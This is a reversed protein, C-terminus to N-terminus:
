SAPLYDLPDLYGEVASFPSLASGCGTVAKFQNFQKVQVAESVYLTYHLHPGTSYGTNGTYGVVDGTNVKQGNSVGIHSLHAFLTSLGNPHDILMWKGWSYCGPVADTNGTARVTGTLPAYIKTGVPASLDVGNHMNNKYVGQNQLAFKTYGFYQTITINALPWRFVATGPTPIKNPDLIFQLQSEIDQVEKILQERAAKRSSLMAQYEAEENKTEKLLQDKEAKNNDLVAQQGTYQRKLSVLEERHESQQNLKNTLTNHLTSLNEVQETMSNRVTQMSEVEDWFQSINGNRLLLEILTDNDNIYLDRLLEAIAAENKNISTETDSIELSLKNIELDTSSIKNQTYSIDALVKKRELNLRDIADQLTKKEAGVENLASEFEAIEKEIAELRENKDNIQQQLKSIESSDTSQALAVFTDVSLMPLLVLGIFFAVVRQRSM